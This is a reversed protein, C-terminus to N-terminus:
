PTASCIAISTSVTASSQTPDEGGSYGKPESRPSIPERVAAAPTPHAPSEGAGLFGAPSANSGYTDSDVIMADVEGLLASTTAGPRSDAGNATTSTADRVAPHEPSYQVDPVGGPVPTGANAEAQSAQNGLTASPSPQGVAASTQPSPTPWTAVGVQGVRGAMSSVYATYREFFTQYRGRLLDFRKSLTENEPDAELAHATRELESQLHAIMQNPTPRQQTSPQQQVAPVPQAPQQLPRQTAQMVIQNPYPGESVRGARTVMNSLAMYRQVFAQYDGRLAVLEKALAENLPHVKLVEPFKGLESQLYAILQSPTPHQQFRPQQVAPMPQAHQQSPQQAVQMIFQNPYPGGSVRGAQTAMNHETYWQVFTQYHARLLTLQRKLAENGPDAKLAEVAKGLENQLQGLKQNPTPKANPREAVPRPQVHQQADQM